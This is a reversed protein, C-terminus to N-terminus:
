NINPKKKPFLGSLRNIVDSQGCTPGIAPPVLIVMVPFSKGDGSASTVIPLIPFQM